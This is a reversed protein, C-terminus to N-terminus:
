NGVDICYYSKYTKHKRWAKMRKTNMLLQGPFGYIKLYSFLKIFTDKLL